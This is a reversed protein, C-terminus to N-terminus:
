YVSIEYDLFGRLFVNNNRLIERWTEEGKHWFEGVYLRIGLAVAKKVAAAFDVHGTGYPVERYVGPVTEKLHLAAIHGRGSELDALVDHGYVKAANTLNGIDPYVQLYPSEIRKVWYMAKEVTDLFPTEMTEFALIVGQRSATEVSRSLNEAFLARTNEDGTKYYVDYGALQIIRVGLRGALNVAKEMIALGRKRIDEDPDGLSFKRHGSLCISLIQVGSEEVARRLGNIEGETWDLRALKEDSEDISLELYDFGADRTEILKQPVSLDGPMAKEYLGLQYKKM